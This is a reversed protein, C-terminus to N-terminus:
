KPATIFEVWHVEIPYAETPKQKKQKQKNTKKLARELTTERASTRLSAGHTGEGRAPDYFLTEHGVLTAFLVIKTTFNIFGLGLGLGLVEVWVELSHLEVRGEM